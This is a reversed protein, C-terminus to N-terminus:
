ASARVRPPLGEPSDRLGAFSTPSCLSRSAMRGMRYISNLIWNNKPTSIRSPVREETLSMKMQLTRM